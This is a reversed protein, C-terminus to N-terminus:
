CAFFRRIGYNKLSIRAFPPPFIRGFSAFTLSPHVRVLHAGPFTPVMMHRQRQDGHPEQDTFGVPTLRQCRGQSQRLYV